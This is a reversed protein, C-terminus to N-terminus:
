LEVHQVRAKGLSAFFVISSLSYLVTAIGFLISLGADMALQLWPIMWLLSRDFLMGIIAPPGFFIANAAIFFWLARGTKGRVAGRSKRLAERYMKKETVIVVDFFSSRVAYLLAPILLPVGILLWPWPMVIPDAPAAVIALLLLPLLFLLVLAVTTGYWLINTLLLPLVLRLAEKRVISFSSRSRGARNQILRKGVFFVCAYGWFTIFFLLLIVAILLPVAQDSVTLYAAYPNPPDWPMLQDITALLFSPIVLMWLTVEHLVTHKRAFSWATQIIALISGSRSTM